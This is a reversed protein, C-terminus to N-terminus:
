ENIARELWTIIREAMQKDRNVTKLDDYIQATNEKLYEIEEEIQFIMAKYYSRERNIRLILDEEAM